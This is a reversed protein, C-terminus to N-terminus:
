EPGEDIAAEGVIRTLVGQRWVCRTWRDDLKEWFCIGESESLNNLPIHITLRTLGLWSLKLNTPWGIPFVSWLLDEDPQGYQDV